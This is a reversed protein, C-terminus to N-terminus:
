LSINICSSDLHVRDQKIDKCNGALANLMNLFKVVLIYKMTFM